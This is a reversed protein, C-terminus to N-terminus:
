GYIRIDKGFFRYMNYHGIIRSVFRESYVTKLEKPKLNTSIVTSKEGILRSNVINFLESNTFSNITETGVDDIILLDTNKLMDVRESDGVRRNYYDGLVEFLQMATMYLVTKGRDMVEKAICSCLFTKGLGSEGYFLMNVPEEGILHTKEVIGALMKQMNMRPSIKEGAPIEDSFVKINFTGFNQKKVLSGINSLEYYKEVLMRSFCHCRKSGIYGTDKCDPCTYLQNLYRPSYGAGQLLQKKRERLSMVRNELDNLSKRKDADEFFIKSIKSGTSAIERDIAEIEPIQSYILRKRNTMEHEAASRDKEYKRLIEAYIETKTM